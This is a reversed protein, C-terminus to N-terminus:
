DREDDTVIRVSFFVEIERLKQQSEVSALKAFRLFTANTFGDQVHGDAHWWVERTSNHGRARSELLLLRRPAITRVPSRSGTRDADNRMRWSGRSPMGEIPSFSPTLVSYGSM